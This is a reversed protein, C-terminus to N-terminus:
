ASGTTRPDPSPPLFAFPLWPAIGPLERVPPPAKATQRSLSQFLTTPKPVNRPRAGGGRCCRRAPRPSPPRGPASSRPWEPCRPACRLYPRADTPPTRQEWSSQPPHPSEGGGAAM